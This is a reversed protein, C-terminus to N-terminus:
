GKLRELLEPLPQGSDEPYYDGDNGDALALVQM